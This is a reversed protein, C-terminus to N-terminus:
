KKKLTDTVIKVCKIIYDHLSIESDFAAKKADRHLDPTLYILFKKDKELWSMDKSEAEKKISKLDDKTLSKIDRKAM